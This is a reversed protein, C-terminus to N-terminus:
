LRSGGNSVLAEHMTGASSALEEIGASKIGQSHSCPHFILLIRVKEQKLDCLSHHALSLSSLLPRLSASFLFYLWALVETLGVNPTLVEEGKVQFHGFCGSLVRGSSGATGATGLVPPCSPESQIRNQTPIKKKKYSLSTCPRM